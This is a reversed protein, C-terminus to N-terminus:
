HGREDAGDGANIVPVHAYDAAVLASGIEPHRLVIADSYQELTRITDPLSEGKSVSSFQVGQMIPIVSGGVREVMERMEHSRQFIYALMKRDFQNVSLIDQGTLGNSYPSPKPASDFNFLKPLTCTSEM